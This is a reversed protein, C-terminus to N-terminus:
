GRIELSRACAAGSAAVATAGRGPFCSDGVRYLNELSTSNQPKRMLDRSRRLLLGYTRGPRALYRENAADGDRPAGRFGCSRVMRRSSSRPSTAPNGVRDASAPRSTTQLSRFRGLGSSWSSTARDDGIADFYRWEYEGPEALRRWHGATAGTEIRV